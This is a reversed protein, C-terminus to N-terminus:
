NLLTITGVFKHESELADIVVVHYTYVGAHVRGDKWYGDWGFDPDNPM